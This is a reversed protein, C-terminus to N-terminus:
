GVDHNRLEADGNDFGVIGNKAGDLFSATVADDITVQQLSSSWLSTECLIVELKCYVIDHLVRRIIRLELIYVANNHSSATPVRECESITMRKEEIPIDKQSFSLKDEQRGRESPIVEYLIIGVFVDLPDIPEHGESLFDKCM